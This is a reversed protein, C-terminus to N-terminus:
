KVIGNSIIEAFLKLDVNGGSIIVGVKHHPEFPILRNLAAAAGLCGTPEVVIKMREAFFHMQECLQEESVTIMGDVNKLIIPFNIEGLQQARAGDAITDSIPISILRKAYYSQQADNGLEPEVGIVQCQPYLEKAAIACGSILGGGGVCVFLYDLAGVEDFLEKAATGQGAIVNKDNYPHILTLGTKEILQKVIIERQEKAKDFLIVQAGYGKVANIKVQPSDSSMIITIAVNLMAGAIALGQAHNGSSFAVVGRKKEEKTLCSIANYAGRFKFSGGRNFNECKFFVKAGAKENAFKSTMVPTKSICNQLNREADLIDNYGVPKFQNM